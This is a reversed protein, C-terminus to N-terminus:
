SEPGFYFLSRPLCLHLRIHAPTWSCDLGWSTDDVPGDADGEGFSAVIFVEPGWQGRPSPTRVAQLIAGWSVRADEGGLFTIFRKVDLNSLM